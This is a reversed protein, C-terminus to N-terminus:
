QVEISEGDDFAVYEEVDVMVRNGAVVAGFINVHTSLPVEACWNYGETMRLHSITTTRGFLQM